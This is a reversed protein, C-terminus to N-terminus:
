TTAPPRGCWYQLGYKGCIESMAHNMERRSVRLTATTTRFRINEIANTRLPRTGPHAPRIARAWADRQEARATASSTAAFPYTTPSHQHARLALGFWRGTSRRLLYGAGFLIGRDDAGTILDARADTAITFGRARRRQRHRAHDGRGRGRAGM